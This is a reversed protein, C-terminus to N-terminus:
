AVKISVISQQILNLLLNKKFRALAQRIYLEEKFTRIYLEEKFTRHSKKQNFTAENKKLFSVDQFHGCLKKMSVTLVYSRTVEM